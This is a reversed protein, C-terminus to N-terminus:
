SRAQFDLVRASPTLVSVKLDAHKLIETCFKQHKSTIGDWYHSVFLPTESGALLDTAGVFSDLGGSLLCVCTPNATRLKHATPVLKKQAPIRQRFYVNWRDGTLFNLLKTLLQSQGRWLAPDSVPVSLDIERTWKDQSDIERSVRTDAATVLAALILLDIATESPALGLTGLQQLAQGLGFELRQNSQIFSIETVSSDARAPKVSVKDGAGLRAVLTHHKM